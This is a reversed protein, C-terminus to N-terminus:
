QLGRSDFGSVKSTQKVITRDACNCRQLKGKTILSNLIHMCDTSLLCCKDDREHAQLTNTLIIYICIPPEQRRHM